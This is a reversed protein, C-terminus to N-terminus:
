GLDEIHNRKKLNDELNRHENTKSQMRSTLKMMRLKNEM